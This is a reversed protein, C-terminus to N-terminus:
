HVLLLSVHCCYFLSIAMDRFMLMVGVYEFIWMNVNVYTEHIVKVEPLMKQYLDPINQQIGLSANLYVEATVAPKRFERSLLDEKMGEAM